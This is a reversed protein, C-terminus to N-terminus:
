KQIKNSFVYVPREGEEWAIAIFGKLYDHLLRLILIKRQEDKCNDALRELKKETFDIATSEKGIYLAYNSCSKKKVAQKKAQPADM